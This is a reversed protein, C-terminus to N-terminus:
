SIISSRVYAWKEDQDMDDYVFTHKYDCYAIGTDPFFMFDFYQNGFQLDSEKFPEIFIINKSAFYEKEEDTRKDIGAQIGGGYFGGVLQLDEIVDPISYNHGYGLRADYETKFHFIEVYNQGTPDEYVLIGSRCSGADENTFVCKESTTRPKRSNGYGLCALDETSIKKGIPMLACAKKGWAHNVIAYGTQKAQEEIELYRGFNVRCVTLDGIREPQRGFESAYNETVM